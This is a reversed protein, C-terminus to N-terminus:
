NWGMLRITWTATALNYAATLLFMRELGVSAEYTKM